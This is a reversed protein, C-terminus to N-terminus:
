AEAKLITRFRANGENWMPFNTGWMNNFLNAWIGKATDPLENHFGYISPQGVALLPSDLLELTIDQFCLLGETAHLERNGLSIVELPHIDSGLKRIGTLPKVPNFELWLAEPVRYAPKDFWAFDFVIRDAEPMLCLYMSGPCGHRTKAVPDCDLVLYLKDGDTYATQLVGDCTYYEQMDRSLGIKGFDNTAWWVKKMHEKLYRAKFGEVEEESFAEYRFMGLHHDEDAYVIGNKELYCVAGTKDWRITWGKLCIENGPVAEMASFDPLQAQYESIAAKAAEKTESEPLNEVAQYVYGRQEEWSQEFKRFNPQQRAEELHERSFNHWDQLHKKEDMGWTHEPILLLSSYLAEKEEPTCNKALRLLSRYMSLKQPDTGAGHIWTDGIEQTIVPLYNVIPRVLLALDNLDGATIEAEPYQEHLRAYISEIEDPSSPGANDGTHAFYVGADTGPIPTFDGYSGKNYMVTIEQGEPCRWRFLMPVDPATSAPNVGIHLFEIGAAQLLPVISRTHGPVDTMKAAITHVGYAEDMRRSLSLGYNFLNKDAVESHTTTPLGHWRIWKNRIAEEMAARSKGDAQQLYQHILYSGTTWTFGEAVGRRALERAVGLSRPIFEENYRRIVSRSFDTFGVDLHTKFLVLIKKM